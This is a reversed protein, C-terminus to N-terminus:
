NDENESDENDGRRARQRAPATFDKVFKASAADIKERQDTEAKQALEEAEALDVRYNVESGKIEFVLRKYRFGRRNKAVIAFAERKGLRFEIMGTTNHKWKNSGVFRGGKGVQQVVLFTTYLGADNNGNNHRVMTDIVFSEARQQTLGASEQLDDTLESASDIVVLDWGEKLVQEIVKRPDSDPYDALFLTPIEGFKPFRKVYGVMDIRTMEAEIRLVKKGQAHHAAAYEMTITSKGVGPDGILVYNTGRYVGGTSSLCYDLSVGGVMPELLEAPVRKVYSSMLQLELKLPKEEVVRGGALVTGPAVSYFKAKAEDGSRHDERLIINGVKDMGHVILGTDGYPKDLQEKVHSDVRERYRNRLYYSQQGLPNLGTPLESKPANRADTKPKRKGSRSKKASSRRRTTTAM